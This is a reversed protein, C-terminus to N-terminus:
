HAREWNEGVGAEVLLPVRLEAVGSMIRPVETRILELEVWGGGPEVTPPWAGLNGAIKNGNRDTLLYVADPEANSRVRRDIARSLGLMGLSGYSDALGTLEAEVVSRTEAEIIRNATWYVLALVAAIAVCGLAASALILRSRASSLM